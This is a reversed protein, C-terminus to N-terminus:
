HDNYDFIMNTVINKFTEFDIEDINPNAPLEM